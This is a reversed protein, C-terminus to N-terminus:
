NENLIVGRGKCCKCEVVPENIMEMLNHLFNDINSKLDDYNKGSFPDVIPYNNYSKPAIQYVTV